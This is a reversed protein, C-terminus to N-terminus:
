ACSGIRITDLSAQRQAIYNNDVGAISSAGSAVMANASLAWTIGDESISVDTTNSSVALFLGGNYTVDKWINSNSGTGVLSM